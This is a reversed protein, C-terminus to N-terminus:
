PSVWPVPRNSSGLEWLWFEVRDLEETGADSGISRLMTLYRGYVDVSTTSASLGLADSWDGASVLYLGRVSMRDMILARREISLPGRWSYFFLLKTGFATGLGKLKCAPRGDGSETKHLAEFAPLAGQTRALKALTSIRSRADITESIMRETRTAGTGENNYGWMMAVVFGKIVDEDCFRFVTDRNGRAPLEWTPDAVLRSLNPWRELAWRSPFIDLEPDKHSELYAILDARAESRLSMTM